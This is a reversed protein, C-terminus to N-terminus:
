QMTNAYQEAFHCLIGGAVKTEDEEDKVFFNIEMLHEPIHQTNFKSLM